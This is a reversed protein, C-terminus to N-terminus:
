IFNLRSVDIFKRPFKMAWECLVSYYSSSVHLSSPLAYFIVLGRLSIVTVAWLSLYCKPIYNNITDDHPALLGSM